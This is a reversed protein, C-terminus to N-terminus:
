GLVTLVVKLVVLHVTLLDHGDEECDDGEDDSKEELVVDDVDVKLAFWLVVMMEVMMAVTMEVLLVVM